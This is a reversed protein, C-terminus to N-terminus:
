VIGRSITWDKVILAVKTDRESIKRGLGKRWPEKLGWGMLGKGRGRTQVSGPLITWDEVILAVQADRESVRRGLGKRWPDTGKEKAKTHPGDREM